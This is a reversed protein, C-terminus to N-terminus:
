EASALITSDKASHLWWAKRNISFIPRYRGKNGASVLTKIQNDLIYPGTETYVVLVAHPINKINDHVIVVRLREEPVGLMRLATYKAIAFDECDGGRKLFEIPTEWYDSKGWNNKDLIYRKKNAVNNVHVAMAKISLGKVSELDQQWARILKRSSSNKLEREFRKFMSTWKTFPELNYSRKEDTSFLDPYPGSMRYDLADEASVMKITAPVDKIPDAYARKGKFAGLSAGFLIFAALGRLVYQRGLVFALQRKSIIASELFIEGLPTNTEKQRRLAFRLQEPSILGNIVLLEGLRSRGLILKLKRLVGINNKTKVKLNRMGLIDRYDM